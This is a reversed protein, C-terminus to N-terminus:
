LLYSFYSREKWKDKAVFRYTQDAEVRYQDYIEYKVTGNKNDTLTFTDGNRLKYLYGFM